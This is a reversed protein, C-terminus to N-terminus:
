SFLLAQYRCHNAPFNPYSTIWLKEKCESLAERSSARLALRDFYHRLRRLKLGRRWCTILPIIRRSSLDPPKALKPEGLHLLDSMVHLCESECRCLRPLDGKGVKGSLEKSKMNCGLSYGYLARVCNGRRGGPAVADFDCYLTLRM